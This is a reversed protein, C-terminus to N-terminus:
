EAEGGGPVADVPLEFAIFLLCAQGKKCYAKHPAEAPGYAYTGAMLTKTPEGDYTVDMEGSVLLMREASTHWHRPIESNGPVRFFIDANEAAPDGHLVTIECGEPMFEPCPGWELETDTAAYAVPSEASALGAAGLTSGIILVASWKTWFVKYM